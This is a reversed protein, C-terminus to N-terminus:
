ISDLSTMRPNHAMVKVQLSLIVWTFFQLLLESFQMRFIFIKNSNLDEFIYPLCRYQYRSMLVSGLLM